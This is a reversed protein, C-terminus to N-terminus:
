MKVRSPLSVVTEAESGCGTRMGARALCVNLTSSVYSPGHVTSIVVPMEGLLRRSSGSAFPALSFNYTANKSSTTFCSPFASRQNGGLAEPIDVSIQIITPQLSNLRRQRLQQKHKIPRLDTHRERPPRIPQHSQHRIRHTHHNPPPKSSINQPVLRTIRFIKILLPPPRSPISYNSQHPCLTSHGLRSPPDRESGQAEPLTYLLSPLEGKAMTVNSFRCFCDLKLM